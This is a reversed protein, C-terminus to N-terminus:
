QNARRNEKMKKSVVAEILRLTYETKLADTLEAKQGAIKPIRRSSFGSLADKKKLRDDLWRNLRISPKTIKVKARQYQKQATPKLNELFKQVKEIDQGGANLADRLVNRLRALQHNNINGTIKHKNAKESLYADLRQRLIREAM